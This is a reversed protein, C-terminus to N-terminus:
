PMFRIPLPSELRKIASQAAERVRPDPDAAAKRLLGASDHASDPGILGMTIAAESRVVPNPDSRLAEMLSPLAENRLGRYVHCGHLAVKADARSDDRALLSVLEPAASAADPGIRGLSNAVAVAMPGSVGPDRLISRLAPVAVKGLASVAFGADVRVGADEDTFRAIMAPLAELAGPGMKRLAQLAHLRSEVSSDGLIATLAPLAPAGIAALATEAEVREAADASKLRKAWRAAEGARPAPGGSPFLEATVADCFRAVVTRQYRARTEGCTKPEQFGALCRLDGRCDKLDGSRLAAQTYSKSLCNAEDGSHGYSRGKFAKECSNSSVFDLNRACGEITEPMPDADLYPAHKGCFLMPSREKVSRMLADCVPALSADSSALVEEWNVGGFAVAYRCSEPDPTGKHVSHLLRQLGIENCDADGLDLAGGYPVQGQACLSLDDKCLMDLHTALWFTDSFGPPMKEVGGIQAIADYRTEAICARLAKDRGMSRWASPPEASAYGAFVFLAAAALSTSKM